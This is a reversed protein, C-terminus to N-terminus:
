IIFLFVIYLIFPVYVYLGVESMEEPLLASTKKIFRIYFWLFHEWKIFKLLGSCFSVVLAEM